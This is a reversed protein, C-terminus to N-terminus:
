DDDSQLVQVMESGGRRRVLIGRGPPLQTGRVDGAIVGERADASLLLSVAGVERTRSIVADSLLVRSIGGSRRAVVVHFGAQSAVLAIVTIGTDLGAVEILARGLPDRAWRSGANFRDIVM